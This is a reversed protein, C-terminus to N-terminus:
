DLNYYTSLKDTLKESTAGIKRCFLKGSGVIAEFDKETLEEPNGSTEIWKDFILHDNNLSDKYVSNMLINQFFFEEPILCTKLSKLYKRNNKIYDLTYEAFNKNIHCYFYGRYLFSRSTNKIHLKKQLRLMRETLKQGSENKGDYLHLFYYYEYRAKIREDVPIIEMFNEDKHESFFDNFHEYSSSLFTNGALIHYFDYGGKRVAKNMLDLVALIHKYSGWYIKYRFIVTVNGLSSFFDKINEPLSFKKDVHVFVDGLNAYIEVNRKLQEFNNYATILFAHKNLATKEGYFLRQKYIIDYLFLCHM